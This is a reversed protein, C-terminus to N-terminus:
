RRSGSAAPAKTEKHDPALALLLAIGSVAIAEFVATAENSNHLDSAARPIHLLIVWLFVMLSTLYAALRATPRLQLGIGGAILAVGAFYTWFWAGPIWAPVLTIVFQAWLFHQIGCLVLFGSLCVRGTGVLLSPAPTEGTKPLTAAVVLAGSGLVFAKGASTWEGGWNPHTLATPLALLVAALLIVTGTILAARRATREFLLAVGAIVLAGGIGYPWFARGLVWAPWPPM